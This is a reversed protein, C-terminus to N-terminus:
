NLKDGRLERFRKRAEVTFISGTYDTLLKQYYDKAKESDKFVYQHIEALKFLADDALIDYGYADVIQKLFAAAAAFDQKKEMISAKKFLIEDALAHAPFLNDISDLILVAEDDKNQYSLLEARAYMGLPVTSTDITSNDTILLSLKMADNAILKSTSGKLVDLQAQAWGFDGTYYSIKANRLKAEDGLPDHKFSKEVQSYYLSAEWIDGIMLLIDALLLKVEAQFHSSIGTILLSEELLSIAKDTNHLYFAYLYALGKLLPSTHVSTGLEALTTHYSKELTRLDEQTYNVQETIKKNLVELLEIKAAIYYYSEKGKEIVTQYAKIATEYEQNSVCTKALTILRGGDEQLRKDLAKTQIYAGTFNKEQIFLWILMESYITKDPHKQVRKLLQSKILENGTGDSFNDSDYIRLLYNQVQQLYAENILLVDLYENVM